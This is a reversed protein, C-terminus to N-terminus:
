WRLSNDSKQPGSYLEFGLDCKLCDSPDLGYGFDGLRKAYMRRL